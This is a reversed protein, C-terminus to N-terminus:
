QIAGYNERFHKLFGIGDSTIYFISHHMDHVIYKAEKLSDIQRPIDVKNYDIKYPSDQIEVYLDANRMGLRRGIHELIIIRAREDGSYRRNKLPDAVNDQKQEDGTLKDLLGHIENLAGDGVESFIYRSLIQLIQQKIEKKDM